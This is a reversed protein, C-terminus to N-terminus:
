TQPFEAQSQRNLKQRFSSVILIRMGAEQYWVFFLLTYFTLATAQAHHIVSQIQRKDGGRNIRIFVNFTSIDLRISHRIFDSHSRSEFTNRAVSQLEQELDRSSNNVRYDASQLSTPGVIPKEDDLTPQQSRDSVVVLRKTGCKFRLERM